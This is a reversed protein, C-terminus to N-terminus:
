ASINELDAIISEPYLVYPNRFTMVRWLHSNYSINNFIDYRRKFDPRVSGDPFKGLISIIRTKQAYTKENCRYVWLLFVINLSAVIIVTAEIM